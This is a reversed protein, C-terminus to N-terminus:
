SYHAVLDIEWMQYDKLNWVVNPKDNDGNTVLAYSVNTYKITPPVVITVLHSWVSGNTGVVESDDIWKLSTVNLVYQQNGLITTKTKDKLIEWKYVEEPESVYQDLQEVGAMVASALSLAIILIRQM